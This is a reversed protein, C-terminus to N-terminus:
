NRLISRPLGLQGSPAAPLNIQPPQSREVPINDPPPPLSVPAATPQSPPIPTSPVVVGPIAGSSGSGPTSGSVGAPGSGIGSADMGLLSEATPFYTAWYRPDPRRGWQDRGVQLSLIPTETGGRVGVITIAVENVSGNRNFIGQAIGQATTEARRLLTDYSETQGWTLTSSYRTPEAQATQPSATKALLWLGPGLSLAMAMAVRTLTQTLSAARTM